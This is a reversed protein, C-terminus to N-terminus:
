QGTNIILGGVITNLIAAAAMKFISVTNITSWIILRVNFVFKNVLIVRPIMNLCSQLCFCDFITKLIASAAMKFKLKTIITPLTIM